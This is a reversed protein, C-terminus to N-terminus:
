FEECFGVCLFQDEGTASCQMGAPCPDFSEPQCELFCVGTTGRPSAACFGNPGCTADSRCEKCHPEPDPFCIGRQLDCREGFDCHLQTDFCTRTLCQNTQVDCREGIPCDDPTACGPECTFTNLDCYNELECHLSSRCEVERCRKDICAEFEGCAVSSECIAGTTGCSGLTIAVLLAGWRAIM